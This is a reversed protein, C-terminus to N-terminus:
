PFPGAGTLSLPGGQEVRSSVVSPPAGWRLMLCPSVQQGETGASWSPLVAVALHARARRRRAERASDTAAWVHLLGDLAALPLLPGYQENAIMVAGAGLFSAELLSYAGASKWQGLAAPGAGAWLVSLGVVVVPRPTRVSADVLARGWARVGERFAEVSYPAGEVEVGVLVPVPLEILGDHTSLKLREQALGVFAGEYREGGIVEVVLGIGDRIVPVAAEASAEGAPPEVAAGAEPRPEDAVALAAALALGALPAIM